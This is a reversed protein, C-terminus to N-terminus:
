PLSWASFAAASFLKPDDTQGPSNNERYFGIGPNGIRYYNTRAPTTGIITEVGTGQRIMSVTVVGTGAGDNLVLQACLKDGDHVGHAAFASSFDDFIGTGDLFRAVFGLTGFKGQTVNIEIGDFDTDNNFTDGPNTGVHRVPGFKAGLLCEVELDGVPTGTLSLTVEVRHNHAFGSLFAQSDNYIPIFREDGTQTGYAVGNSSRVVPQYPSGTTWVGGESIPNETLSFITSFSQSPLLPAGELVMVLAASAFAQVVEGANLMTSAWVDFAAHAGIQYADYLRTGAADTGISITLTQASGTPNFVHVRTILTGGLPATYKTQASGSLAAPGFLRQGIM